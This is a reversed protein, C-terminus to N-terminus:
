SHAAAHHNGILSLPRMVNTGVAAIPQLSTRSQHGSQALLMGSKSIDSQVVPTIEGFNRWSLRKLEFCAREILDHGHDRFPSIM